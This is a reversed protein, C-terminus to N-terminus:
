NTCAVKFKSNYQSWLDIQMVNENQKKAESIREKIESTDIYISSNFGITKQSKPDIKLGRHQWSMYGYPYQLNIEGNIPRNSPNELTITPNTSCTVDKIKIEQDTGICTTSDQYSIQAGIAEEMSNHQKKIVEVFNDVNKSPNYNDMECKTSKKCQRNLNHEIMDRNQKVEQLYLQSANLLKRNIEARPKSSDEVLDTTCFTAPVQKVSKNIAIDLLDPRKLMREYIGISISMRNMPPYKAASDEVNFGIEDTDLYRSNPGNHGSQFSTERIEANAIAYSSTIVFIPVFLVLLSKKGVRNKLYFVTIVAPFITIINYFISMQHATSAYSSSSNQLLMASFFSFLLLFLAGAEPLKWHNSHSKILHRLGSVVNFGIVLVGFGFVLKYPMTRAFTPGLLGLEVIGYLISFSITLAIWSLLEINRIRSPESRDSIAEEMIEDIEPKSYGREERLLQRVKDKTFGEDLANKVEEVVSM